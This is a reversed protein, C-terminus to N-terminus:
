NGPRYRFRGGVEDCFALVKKVDAREEGLCRLGDLLDHLLPHEPDLAGTRGLFAAPVDQFEDSLYRRVISNYQQWLVRNAPDLGAILLLGTPSDNLPLLFLDPRQEALCLLLRWVNGTWVRTRRFRSGQLPHNPFIDDIVILGSPSARRELNMFDRFAYEFLHLGDIFALDVSRDIAEAAHRDFFEDSTEHYLVVAPNPEALRMKPDIGIASNKALRLSDGARVGIELYLEPRLKEHIRSLTALYHEAGSITEEEPLGPPVSADAPDAPVWVVLPTKASREGGESAMQRRPEERPLHKRFVGILDNWPGREDLWWAELHCGAYKALAAYSDPYFRYCDVPYRHVPGSSPAILFVFGDDKMVRVMEQFTLWFFECHEFTQGSIVLDFAGDPLPIHYPDHLVIDVGDAPALDAALYEIKPDCFVDLYSGNVKAGGIELVTIRERAKIFTATVYKEYCRGM